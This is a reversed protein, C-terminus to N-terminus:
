ISSKQSQPKLCDNLIRLMGRPVASKKMCVRDSGTIEPESAGLGSILIRGRLVDIKRIVMDVDGGRM